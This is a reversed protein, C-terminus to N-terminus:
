LVEEAEEAEEIKFAEYEVRELLTAAVEAARAAAEDEEIGEALFITCFSISASMMLQIRMAYDLKQM